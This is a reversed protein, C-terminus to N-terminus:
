EELGKEMLSVILRQGPNRASDINDSINKIGVFGILGNDLRIKAGVPVGPCQGKDTHTWVDNTGLFDARRCFGCEWTNKEANHKPNGQDKENPKRHVIYLM